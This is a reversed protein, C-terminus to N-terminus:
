LKKRGSFLQNLTYEPTIGLMIDINALGFDGDVLATRKHENCLSIALNVALTSKGVGGKGSAIVITKTKSLGHKQSYQNQIEAEIEGKLNHAIERLKEAQDKM